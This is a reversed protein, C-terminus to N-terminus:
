EYNEFGEIIDLYTGDFGAAIIKDLYSDTSGYIIDQWDKMWYKVEYNGEWQKNEKDLWDPSDKEWSNQWYYRYDEAEGISMYCILLRTGGNAKQKLQDVEASTFATNDNFFLDMILLDYNTATVADIFDSKTAYREPNIMYLFNKVDFMSEISDANENNIKAPYTPIRDLERSNAAFSIYGKTSNKLYSDDVNSSTSCYDTVLVPTGEGKAIDLLASIYKNDDEPTAKDDKNYGYFLDEQGLADVAAIYDLEPSGDTDGNDSVLEHGNQPIIIFREKKSKSYDSIDQVFDRMRQKYIPDIDKNCAVFILLFLVTYLLSKFKRM